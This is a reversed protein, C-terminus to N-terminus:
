GLRKALEDLGLTLIIPKGDPTHNPNTCSFLTTILEKQQINDLTKSFDIASSNAMKLAMLENFSEDLLLEGHKFDALLADFLHIADINELEIPLGTVKFHCSGCDIVDIGFNKLPGLLEQLITSDSPSFAFLQPYLLKQCNFSNNIQQNHFREYLIRSYARKQDILVLEGKITTAIYNTKIQISPLNGLTSGEEIELDLVTQQHPVFSNTPASDIDANAQGFSSAFQDFGASKGFGGSTSSAFQSQSFSATKAPVLESESGAFPSSEDFNFPNFIPNGNSPVDAGTASTQLPIHPMDVTDFDISPVVSYKGLSEKIGANLIFWISREDEFKIETKTPHINVDIIQPDVYFYIFYTPVLDPPLLKQYGDVVARHFYPHRMFRNNTFFYQDGASKRASEPTGIFGNIKVMETDVNIPVLNNNVLKGMLNAIRQRLNSSPLSLTPLDNHMLVIAVDPNALVIREFENLIHRYEASNSKLFKRRAPINFFLNKVSINTGKSCQISEQKVVKSGSIELYSGIEETIHCTKVEVQAVSAISPLAEGRFGMTQLSFLDNAEKIKSTAHREFAMRVDIASMGAGNDIIQILTRGADRIVIQIETAGADISNEVLEKVVSAPRQIVEGAAIQNAVSDPLLRIVQSM